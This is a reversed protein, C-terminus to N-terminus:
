AVLDGADHGADRRGALIEWAANIQKLRQERLARDNAGEAYDPHWSLRLGDVIKKIAMENHESAVGMGLIALAEERTTPVADSLSGAHSPTPQLTGPGSGPVTPFRSAAGFRPTVVLDQRRPEGDLTVVAIDRALAPAGQGSRLWAIAAIALLTLVSITGVIVTSSAELLPSLLSPAPESAATSDSPQANQAGSTAAGSGTPPPPTEARSEAAPAPLAGTPPAEANIIKPVIPAAPKAAESASPPPAQANIIKPAAATGTAPATAAPPRVALEPKPPTPLGSPGASKAAPPEPQPKAQEPQPKSQQEPQARPSQEPKVARPPEPKVVFPPEPRLAAPPEAAAVAPPEARAVPPSMPMPPRAAEAPPEMGRSPRSASEDPVFIADIGLMPAFGAPMAVFPRPEQAAREACHRRLKNYQWPFYRRGERVCPDDAAMGWQVPMEINLRGEEIWSRQRAEAAAVVSPWPVRKGGCDIDFRQVTWRRCMRPNAPACAVFQRQERPGIVAYGRDVSPTLTPRNGVVACSFPMVIMEGARAVAGSLSVALATVAVALGSRAASTTIGVGRRVRVVGLRM